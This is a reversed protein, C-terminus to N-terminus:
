ISMTTTPSFFCFLVIFPLFFLLERLIDCKNFEMGGSWFPSLFFNASIFYEALNHFPQLLHFSVATPAFGQWDLSTKCNGKSHVAADAHRSGLSFHLNCILLRFLLKCVLRPQTRASDSLLNFFFLLPNFTPTLCTQFSRCFLSFFVFM